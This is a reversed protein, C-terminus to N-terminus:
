SAPTSSSTSRFCLLDNLKNWLNSFNSKVPIEQQTPDRVSSGTALNLLPLPAEEMRNAPYSFGPLAKALTLVVLSMAGMLFPADIFSV